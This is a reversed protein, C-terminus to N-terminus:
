YAAIISIHCKAGEERANISSLKDNKGHVNNSTASKVDKDDEVDDDEVAHDEDYESKILM